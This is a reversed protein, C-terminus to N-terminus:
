DKKPYKELFEKNEAVMYITCYTRGDEKKLKRGHLIGQKELKGPTFTGIDRKYKVHFEKMWVKGEKKWGLPPIVGEEINRHCDKCWLCDVTWWIENGPTTNGCIGCTLPGEDARLFFGNPEKELRRKRINEIADHKGGMRALQVLNNMELRSRKNQDTIPNQEEKVKGVLDMLDNDREYGKLKGSIFGLRNTLGENSLRWNTDELADKILKQIEYMPEREKRTTGDDQFSFPVVVFQGMDPKDLSFKVYNHQEVLPKLINELEVFSLKKIKSVQEYVPNDYKRMEDDHAFKSYELAELIEIYEQGKKDDLCYEARYKELLAKDEDEKQKWEKEKAEFDDTEVEKYTCSTCKNTWIVKKGKEKITTKVEKGCKPCLQPKSVHLDGNEYMGLHSNCSSCDFLFCVRMPKNMHDELIKSKCLMHAKCKPCKVNSPEIANDYLDQKSKAENVWKGITESKRQYENAKVVLLHRSLMLNIDHLKEKETLEQLQPDNGHEKYIKRYLDVTELCTRITSLDYLDIYYQESKLYEEGTLQNLV